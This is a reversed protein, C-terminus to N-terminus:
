ISGGSATMAEVDALGARKRLLMDNINLTEKMPEHAGIHLLLGFM